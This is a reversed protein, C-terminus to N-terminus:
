VIITPLRLEAYFVLSMELSWTSTTYTSVAETVIGRYQIDKKPQGVKARWAKPMWTTRDIRHNQPIDFM